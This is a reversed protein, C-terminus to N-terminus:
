SVQAYLETDSALSLLTVVLDLNLWAGNPTASVLDVGDLPALTPSRAFAFVQPPSSIAARLLSLQGRRNQWNTYLAEAPLDRDAPGRYLLLLVRLANQRRRLSQRSTILNHDLGLNCYRTDHYGGLM